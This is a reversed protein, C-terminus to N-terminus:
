SVRHKSSPACGICWDLRSQGGSKMGGMIESKQDWGLLM